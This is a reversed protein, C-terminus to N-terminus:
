ICVYDTIIIMTSFSRTANFCKVAINVISCLRVRLGERHLIELITYMMLDPKIAELDINLLESDRLSTSQSENVMIIMM